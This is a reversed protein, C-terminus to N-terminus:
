AIFVETFSIDGLAVKVSFREGAESSFNLQISKTSRATAQMVAIGVNDLVILELEEPLYSENINPHVKVCINMELESTPILGVVLVVKQEESQQFDLLKARQVQIDTVADDLAIPEVCRFKLGFAQEQPNLLSEVTQWGVDVINMLWQNLDIPKMGALEQLYLLFQSLSRLENLALKGDSPATKAFGLLRGQTLSEDFQVVVYGIRNRCELPINVFKENSLVPRCELTGLGIVNLDAVDVLTRVAPNFIASDELCIAFDMCQLYYKVCSVALTNLYIQKIKEAKKHHLCFRKALLHAQSNIPVPFTMIM